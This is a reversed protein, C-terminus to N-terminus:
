FVYAYRVYIMGFYNQFILRNEYIYKVFVTFLKRISLQM